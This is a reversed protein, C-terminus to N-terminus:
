PDNRTSAGVEPYEVSDVVPPARIRATSPPNKRAQISPPATCPSVRDKVGASGAHVNLTVAGDEDSGEFLLQMGLCIGLFPRDAVLWASIPDVLGQRELRVMAPAAAGVGPVVLADAGILADAGAAIRVEAGLTTFAQHISVLNGAGYDVVAVLPRDGGSM